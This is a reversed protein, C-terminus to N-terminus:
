QKGLNLRQPAPAVMVKEPKGRHNFAVELTVGPKLSDPLEFGDKFFLKDTRQGVVGDEDYSVFAQTGKVREGNSEFDLSKLGLLCMLM